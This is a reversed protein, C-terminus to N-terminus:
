PLARRRLPQFVMSLDYLSMDGDSVNEITVTLVRALFRDPIWFQLMQRRNGREVISAEYVKSTSGDQSELSIQFSEDQVIRLGLYIQNLVKLFHDANLGLDLIKIAREIEQGDNLFSGPDDRQFLDADSYSVRYNREGQFELVQCCQAYPIMKHPGTWTKQIGGDEYWLRLWIESDLSAGTESEFGVKVEEDHYIAQVDFLQADSLAQIIDKFNDGIPIVEQSTRFLYINDRGVYVPGFRTLTYCNPGAFGVAKDIQQTASTVDGNWTFISQQKGIVLFSKPGVNSLDQSYINLGLISSEDGSRVPLAQPTGGVIGFDNPNGSASYYFFGETYTANGAQGALVQRDQFFEIFDTIPIYVPLDTTTEPGDVVAPKLVYGNTYFSTNFGNVGWLRGVYQRSQIRDTLSVYFESLTSEDPTHDQATFSKQTHSSLIERRTSPSFPLSELAFCGLGLPNGTLPTAPIQLCALGEARGFVSIGRRTNTGEDYSDALSWLDSNKPIEKITILVNRYKFVSDTGTSTLDITSGDPTNSLKFTTNGGSYVVDRVYYYANLTLGGITVAATYKLRSLEPIEGPMSITDNTTDVGGVNISQESSVACPLITGDQVGNGAILGDELTPGFFVLAKSIAVETTFPATIDDVVNLPLYKFTIDISSKGEPLYCAMVSGNNTKYSVGIDKGSLWPGLGFYYQRKEGLSGSTGFAVSFSAPGWSAIVTNAVPAGPVPCTISAPFSGSRRTFSGSWLLTGASDAIFVHICFIYEPVNTPCSVQLGNAQISETTAVSKSFSNGPGVYMLYVDRSVAGGGTTSYIMGSPAPISSVNSKYFCVLPKEADGLDVFKAHKISDVGPIASGTLKTVGRISSLEGPNPNTWNQLTFFAPPNKQTGKVFRDVGLFRKIQFTGERQSGM